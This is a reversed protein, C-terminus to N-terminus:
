QTLFAAPLGMGLRGGSGPMTSKFHVCPIEVLLSSRNHHKVTKTVSILLDTEDFRSAFMPFFLQLCLDTCRLQYEHPRLAENNREELPAINPILLVLPFRQPVINSTHGISDQLLRLV